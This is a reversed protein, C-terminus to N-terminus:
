ACKGFGEAERKLAKERASGKLREGYNAGTDQLVSLVELPAPYHGKTQKMADGHAKHYITKRGIPNKELLTGIIGGADGLKPEKALRKGSKIAKFNNQAWRLASEEFNQRPILAEAVGAKYAKEGSLTSLPALIIKMAQAIGVKRPLRVCGGMGPILGL